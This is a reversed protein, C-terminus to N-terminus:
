DERLWALRTALLRREEPSPRWDPLVAYVHAQEPRSWTRVKLDDTRAKARIAQRWAAHEAVALRRMVSGRRLLQQYDRGVDALKREV